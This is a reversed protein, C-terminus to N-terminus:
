PSSPSTSVENLAVKQDDKAEIEGFNHKITDELFLRGIMYSDYYDGDDLSGDGLHMEVGEKQLGQLVVVFLDPRNREIDELLTKFAAEAAWLGLEESRHLVIIKRKEEASLNQAQAEAEAKQHLGQAYEKVQYNPMVLDTRHVEADASNTIGFAAAGFVVGALTRKLGTKSDSFKERLKQLSLSM